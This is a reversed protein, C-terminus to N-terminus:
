VTRGGLAYTRTRLSDALEQRDTISALETYPIPTGITIPMATGIRDTVEKFLLSIRLTPSILSALQFLRSNQGGFFVPLVTAREKIILSATFPKWDPDIAPGFIDPATSVTGGPFAVVTGGRQLEARAEARSQLNTKLAERTEAFDIPLLHSKIEPARNLVSNTLIKFEPRVLSVLYSLVIGDLVGFPHNAVVVLPGTTPVATLADDDYQLDLELYRVAAQWFTEGPRPNHRNEFYMRKLRPQGTLREITRILLKKLKGDNPDAYSFNIDDEDEETGPTQPAPQPGVPHRPPSESLVSKM